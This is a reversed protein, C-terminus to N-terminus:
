ATISPCCLNVERYATIFPFFTMLEFYSTKPNYKGPGPNFLKDVKETDLSVLVRESDHESLVIRDYINQPNLADNFSQKTYDIGKQKLVSEIFSDYKDAAAIHVKHSVGTKVMEGYPVFDQYATYNEADKIELNALKAHQYNLQYTIFLTNVVSSFYILLHM